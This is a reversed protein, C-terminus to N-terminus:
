RWRASPVAGCIIHAYVVSHPFRGENCREGELERSGELERKHEGRDWEYHDQTVVQEQVQQQKFNDEGTCLKSRSKQKDKTKNIHHKAHAM